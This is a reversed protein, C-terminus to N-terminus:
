VFRFFRPYREDTGPPHIGGVPPRRSGDDIPHIRRLRLFSFLFTPFTGGAFPADDLTLSDAKEIDSNPTTMLMLLLMLLLMTLVMLSDAIEVTLISLHLRCNDVIMLPVRRLLFSDVPTAMTEVTPILLLSIKVMSNETSITSVTQMSEHRNGDKGM